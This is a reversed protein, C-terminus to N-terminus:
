PSSVQATVTYTASARVVGALDRIEVLWAGSSSGLSSRAITWIRQSTLALWTDVSAGSNPSIGSSVTLRAEYHDGLGSFGLNTGGWEPARTTGSVGLATTLIGDTGLTIRVQATNGFEVGHTLERDTLQAAGPAGGALLVSLVGSM